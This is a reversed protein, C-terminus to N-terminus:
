VMLHAPLTQLLKGAVSKILRDEITSWCKSKILKKNDFPFKEGKIVGNRECWSLCVCAGQPLKNQGASTSGSTVNYSRLLKCTKFQQGLSIAHLIFKLVLSFYSLVKRSISRHACCVPNRYYRPQGFCAGAPHKRTGYNRYSSPKLLNEKQARPQWPHTALGAGPARVATCFLFYISFINFFVRIPHM